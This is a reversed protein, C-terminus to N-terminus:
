APRDAAVRAPTRRYLFMRRSDADAAGKERRLFDRPDNSLGRDETPPFPSARCISTGEREEICLRIWGVRIASTVPTAM